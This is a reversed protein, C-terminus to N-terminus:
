PLSIIVVNEPRISISKRKLNLGAPGHILHDSISQQRRKRVCVIVIMTIIVLLFITVVGSISAAIIAAVNSKSGKSTSADSTNNVLRDSTGSTETPIQDDIPDSIQLRQCDETYFNSWHHCLVYNNNGMNTISETHTYCLVLDHELQIM